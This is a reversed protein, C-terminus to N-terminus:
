EAAGLPYRRTHRNISGDGRVLGVLVMIEHLPCRPRVTSQQPRWARLLCLSLTATTGKTHCSNFQFPPIRSKFSSSSFQKLHSGFHWLGTVSASRGHGCGCAFALHWGPIISCAWLHKVFRMGNRCTFAEADLDAECDVRVVGRMERPKQLYFWVGTGDMVVVVCLYLRRGFALPRRPHWLVPSPKLALMLMLVQLVPSPCSKVSSDPAVSGPGAVKCM